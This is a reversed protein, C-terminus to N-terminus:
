FHAPYREPPPRRGFLAVTEPHFMVWLSYGGIATGIPILFLDFISLVLNLPRAWPRYALLACGTCAALLQFLAFIAFLVTLVKMVVTTVDELAAAEDATRSASRGETGPASAAGGSGPSQVADQIVQHVIPAGSGRLFWLGYLWFLAGMLSWVIRLWATVRVHTDM